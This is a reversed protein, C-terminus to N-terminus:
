VRVAPDHQDTDEMFGKMREKARWARQDAYWMLAAMDRARRMRRNVSGAAVLRRLAVTTMFRRM